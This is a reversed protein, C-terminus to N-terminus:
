SMSWKLRRPAPRLVPLQWLNGIEKDLEHPWHSLGGAPYATLEGFYIRGEVNYLDVRIFDFRAGLDQAAACMSQFNPPPPTVDGRPHTYTYPLPTWDATYLNRRFTDFRGVDVQIMAVRGAFVFFKYDVPYGALDDVCEELIYERCVQSYGWLAYKKYETEELWGQTQARLREPNLEDPTGSLVCGSRHSAKLVWRRDTSVGALDNLDAGHWITKPVRIQPAWQKALEKSEVKSSAAVLLPNRDFVVRWNVKENFTRPNTLHPLRRHLAAFMLWRAEPPPLTFIARRVLDKAEAALRVKLPLRRPGNPM